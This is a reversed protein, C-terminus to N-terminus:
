KGAGAAVPTAAATEASRAAAAVNVPQSLSQLATDLSRNFRENSRKVWERDKLVAKKPGEFAGQWDRMTDPNTIGHVWNNVEDGTVGPVAQSDIVEGGAPLIKKALDGSVYVPGLYSDVGYVVDEGKATPFTRRFFQTTRDESAVEDVLRGDLDANLTRVKDIMLDLKQQEPTLPTTDKSKVDADVGQVLAANARDGSDEPTFGMDNASLGTGEPDM